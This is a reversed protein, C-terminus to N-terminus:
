GGLKFRVIVLGNQSIDHHHWFACALIVHGRGDVLVELPAVRIRHGFKTGVYGGHGFTADLRGRQDLRALVVQHVKKKWTTWAGGGAVLIRNRTDITISSTHGVPLQASGARGFSPDLLGNARLRTIAGRPPLSTQLALISGQRGLAIQKPLYGSMALSAASAFSEDPMGDSGIRRLTGEGAGCEAQLRGSLVVAGGDDAELEEIQFADPEAVKGGDGFTSDLSGDPNLRMVFSNNVDRRAFAYKGSVAYCIGTYAKSSVGLLIRGQPDIAAATARVGRSDSPGIGRPPPLDFSTLVVGSDGFTPDLNGDPLYRAILAQTAEGYYIAGLTGALVIRGQSDIAMDEPAFSRGDVFNTRLVGGGLGTPQGNPGYRVVISPSPGFGTHTYNDGAAVVVTGDPASEMDVASYPSWLLGPIPTFAKGGTGFSADLIGV